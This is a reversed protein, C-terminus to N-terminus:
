RRIKLDRAFWNATTGSDASLICREPLRPSLDWFVRQPNLPEAPEMARRELLDWWERIGGEVRERWARDHKRKLHPILARLTEARQPRGRRARPRARDARGAALVPRRGLPHQRARAAARRRGGGPPGEPLHHLHRDARRARHAGGPRRPPPRRGRERGPPRVR